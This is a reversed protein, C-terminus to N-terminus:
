HFEILIKRAALRRVSDRSGAMKCPMMSSRQWNEEADWDVQM